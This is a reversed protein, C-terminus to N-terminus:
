ATGGLRNCNQAAPSVMIEMRGEDRGRGRETRKERECMRQREKRQRESEDEDWETRDKGLSM